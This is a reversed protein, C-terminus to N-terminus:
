PCADHLAALEAEHEALVKRLAAHYAGGRLAPPDGRPVGGVLYTGGSSDGWRLRHDDVTIRPIQTVRLVQHGDIHVYLTSHKGDIDVDLDVAVRGVGEINLSAREVRKTKGNICVQRFKPRVTRAPEIGKM